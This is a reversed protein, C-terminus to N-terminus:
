SPPNHPPAKLNFCSISNFITDRTFQISVVEPVIAKVGEIEFISDDIFAISDLGIGLSEAISKIGDVKNDWSCCFYSIHKEGLVMGSHERFMKLVDSEDNKSCVTLIVGHYYLSLLFRQFDQYLRGTGVNGLKVGEIGDESLIGGWLVNDCDLVLCKKSLGQKALYCKVIENSLRSLIIKSYPSNWRYKNKYSIANDIGIDAILRKFDIFTDEKDLYTYLFLNVNEIICNVISLVNGVKSRYFSYDEFGVWFVPSNSHLKITDYLSKCKQLAEDVIGNQTTEGSIVDIITNPFLYEFSLCILICYTDQLDTLHNVYEDYNVCILKPIVNISAFAKKICFSFYPELTFNAIYMIKIDKM